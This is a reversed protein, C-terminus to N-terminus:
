FSGKRIRATAGVAGPPASINLIRNATVSDSQHFVKGFDNQQRQQCRETAAQQHRHVVPAATATIAAIATLMTVVTAAVMLVFVVAITSVISIPVSGFLGAM